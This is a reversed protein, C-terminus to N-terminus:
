SDRSFKKKETDKKLSRHFLLESSKQSRVSDLLLQSSKCARNEYKEDVMVEVNTLSSTGILDTMPRAGKEHFM